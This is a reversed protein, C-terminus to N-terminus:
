RPPHPANNCRSPLSPQSAPQSAPQSPLAGDVDIANYLVDLEINTIHTIGCRRVMGRFEESDLTGNGDSDSQMFLQNWDNGDITYSAARLKRKLVTTNNLARRRITEQAAAAREDESMGLAFQYFPKTTMMDQQGVQGEALSSVLQGEKDFVLATKAGIPVNACAPPCMTKPVRVKHVDAKINLTSPDVSSWPCLPSQTGRYTQQSTGFGNKRSRLVAMDSELEDMRNDIFVGRFDHGKFPPEQWTKLADPRIPKVHQQEAPTLQEGLAVKAKLQQLKDLKKKIAAMHLVERRRYSHPASFEPRHISEAGNRLPKRKGAKTGGVKAAPRPAVGRDTKISSGFGRPGHEPKYPKMSLVKRRAHLAKVKVSGSDYSPKEKLRRIAEDIHLLPAAARPAPRLKKNGAPQKTWAWTACWEGPRPEEAREGIASQLDQRVGGGFRPVGAGWFQGFYEGDRPYGGRQPAM